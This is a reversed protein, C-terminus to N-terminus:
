MGLNSFDNPPLSAGTVPNYPKGLLSEKANTNTTAEWNSRGGVSSGGDNESTFYSDYANGLANRYYDHDPGSQQKYTPDYSPNGHSDYHQPVSMTTYAATQVVPVAQVSVTALTLLSITIQAKM